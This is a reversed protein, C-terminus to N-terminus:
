KRPPANKVHRDLWAIMEAVAHEISERAAYGHSEHPLLVFRAKGGNGKIAQYLRESQIPFTGSNNDDAGHLLLIPENIKKAHMFPSMKLYVEPAQWLTRRENQFGFPTLTRNYAGSRAIGARFIDSHALLNATMFAGYSHGGVAVRDRDTVGLEVAKEVTAQANMVIQEVFTDNAKEASGVVPMSSEIVAYGALLPFLHSAGSISTYRLGLGVAQGALGADTFERPYAWVFTPLRTGEKYGPPLYLTFSLIVGDERKYVVLRRQIQRLEPAQDEYNTLAQNGDKHHLRYNPPSTPTEHRTLFKTAADDLVDVVAEYGAADSRFLRTTKQTTLDFRDLFPRVSDKSAGEGRLFLDNGDQRIVVHGSPLTRTMPTGPDNIRDQVALDWLLQPKANPVPDLRYVRRRRKERDYQTVLAIGKETWQVGMFRNATKLLEVPEAQFPASQTKIADRFGTKRAPDGGDLAEAWVLTAPVDPRWVVSRPKTRVGDIPVKDALPVDAITTVTKGTAEWVQIRRPFSAVPQSYSYPRQITSVLVYKGDPSPSVTSFLAPSGVRTVSLTQADIRHLQAMAHHDFLAEDQKNQLLDQYTRAPAAKGKSEQVSPGLTPPIFAPRDGSRVATVLLTKSDPMWHIPNGLVANLRVREVPVVKGTATSGIFLVLGEDPTNAHQTFAFRSGDPSFMPLSGGVRTSPNTGGVLIERGSGDLTILRYGIYSTSTRPTHSVPDFRLGALRLYPRALETIPPYAKWQALLLTKGDPSVVAAPTTPLDLVKRVAPPAPVYGDQAPSEVVFVVFLLLPAIRRMTGLM